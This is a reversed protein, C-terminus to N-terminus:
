RVVLVSCAARHAVRESVSGLTALGTLGRSGVVLLDCTRSADILAAVPDRTDVEHPVETTSGHAAELDLRRGRSATLAQVDAGLTRGIARAHALAIRSHPSGDVGVVIRRPRSSPEAAPRALLVSCPAEHLLLTAVSGVIYGRARGAGHFGLAVIDPGSQRIEDLLMDQPRAEIIKTEPELPSDLELLVDLLADRAEARVRSRAVALDGNARTVSTWPDAAALLVLQGRDGILRAAQSAAAAAEPSGDIGCVAHSLRAQAEIARLHHETTTTM